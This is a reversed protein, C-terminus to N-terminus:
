VSKRQSGGEGRLSVLSNIASVAAAGTAASSAQQKKLEKLQRDAEVQRGHEMENMIRCGGLPQLSQAITAAATLGEANLVVEVEVSWRLGCGLM